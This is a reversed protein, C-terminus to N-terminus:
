IQAHSDEQVLDRVAQASDQDLAQSALKQCHAFNLTRIKAKTLAIQGVSVSLEDVGLGVLLPIAVSDAGLEGCVGVWKGHRHAAQVTKAILQLVSPHLGDAQASLIPHGRDIALM